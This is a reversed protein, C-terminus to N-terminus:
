LNSTPHRYDIRERTGTLIASLRPTVNYYGKLTFRHNDRDRFEQGNNLYRRASHDIGAEIQAKAIRRGYSLTLGTGTTRWFDPLASQQLRSGTGGRADHGTQYRVTGKGRFRKSFYLDTEGEVNHDNTNEENLDFYSVLKGTYRAKIRHKGIDAEYGILSDVMWRDDGTGRGRTRQVNDVHERALSLNFYLGKATDAASAPSVQVALSTDPEYIVPAEVGIEDSFRLDLGRILETPVTQAAVKASVVSVCAITALVIAGSRGGQPLFVFAHLHSDRM